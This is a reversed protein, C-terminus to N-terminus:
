LRRIVVGLLGPGVHAGVVAGVESEHLDRIRPLQEKLQRAIETARDPSALHQVAVDVESDGAANVALQVLRAIAKSSTRVKELPLIRGDVLHMLPKVSLATGLMAAATGIRGGRHLWELSDVYFLSSSHDICDTAAAAVEEADGGFRASAAAAMVAFGLAMATARSDVVQVTGAPFEGAALRASDCTGSLQGSLHISVVSGAGSDLAARYAAVFDAPTPRSTTVTGRHQLVATVDAPSVDSGEYGSRDGLGVQLPVIRVLLSEAVGAPLYSTSDTVVAVQQASQM